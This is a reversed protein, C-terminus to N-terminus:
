YSHTTISISYGPISKASADKSGAPASILSGGSPFNITDVEIIRSSKEMVSIFNKLSEYEGMVSFSITTTRINEGEAPETTQFANVSKLVMGNESLTRNIYFLLSAISPDYPLATDIKALASEYNKLEAASKELDTYYEKVGELETRRASIQAYLGMLEQYKPWIFGLGIGAVILVLIFTILIKPM